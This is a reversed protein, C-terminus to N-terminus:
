PIWPIPFSHKSEAMLDVMRSLNELDLLLYFEVDLGAIQGVKGIYESPDAASFLEEIPAIKGQTKLLSGTNPPIDVLAGKSTSDQYLLIDSFLISDGDTLILMFSVPETGEFAADLRDGRVKSYLFAGGALILLVILVLLMLGPDFLARKKM